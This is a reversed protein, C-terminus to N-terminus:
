GHLLCKYGLPSTWCNYYTRVMFSTSLARDFFASQTCVVARHAKFERGQCTISMDSFKENLFLKSLSALVSTTRLDDVVGPTGNRHHWGTSSSSSPPRGNM